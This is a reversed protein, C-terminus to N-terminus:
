QAGGREAIAGLLAGRNIVGKLHRDEDVVPLAYPLDHLVQILEPAPTDPRVTQLDTALVGELDRDGRHLAQSCAEAWVLGHLRHEADLVFISSIGAMKMKRLAARPGDTRRYAVALAKKMVSEATLVKTIDVNAVFRAVYDDAPNTLIEEATGQQVIAGDRMLVIRDGIKMAEDLDHSIFLITKRVREQLSVLEDQMDARILPDLASFAEDMLLIDPDLALARALGVRQQMGGSLQGPLSDEWGSLGVLALAERAKDRRQRPDAGQIELGFAANDAVTRHPFLAFNQFVMGLKKQRLARLGDPSLATVEEGDIFVKGASPEILRNICRVLTSKGSGSLGMVVVIEGEEVEFSVNNLGVGHRTREMIEAKGVGDRLLRLAEQPRPGFIKCLGEVVIKAM